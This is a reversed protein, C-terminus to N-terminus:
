LHFFNGAFLSALALLIYLTYHVWTPVSRAAERLATDLKDAMTAIQGRVSVSLEKVDGRVGDILTHTDRIDEELKKIYSNFSTLQDSFRMELGETRDEFRKELQETREELQAVREDISKAMCQTVM